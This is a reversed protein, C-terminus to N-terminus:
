RKRAQKVMRDEEPEELLREQGRGGLEHLMGPNDALLWVATAEDLNVTDGKNLRIQRGDYNRGVYDWRVRYKRM